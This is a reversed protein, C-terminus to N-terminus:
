VLLHIAAATGGVAILVRLVPGPLRRGIHAGLQAGIVSSGALAVVTTWDVPSFAVFLVAAAVNVIGGGLNKLANVRPLGEDYSIALVAILIVGQAAGFYGGYVGTAFIAVKMARRAPRAIGRRATIAAALRPQAIVLVVAFLVLWPVIARFSGPHAILAAAGAIGGALSYPAVEVFRERQEALERRYGHIASLNGISIGVCNSVNAAYPPFGFAVLTPFTILSGSGVVTNVIGAALGAGAIACEGLPLDRGDRRHGYAVGASGTGPAAAPRFAVGPPPRRAAPRASPDVGM